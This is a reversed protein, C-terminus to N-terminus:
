VSPKPKLQEQIWQEFLENLLRQRMAQDLQAPFLKELRAIVIWGGLSMPLLLQGPQSGMLQKALQPHPVSLEVPGILGGTQAEPGESYKGALDAFSHEGEQIRFYLEQAVHPDKVRILSYIMRDLQGKRKLFYSELKNEWTAQKFKEVKINRAISAQWQEVTFNNRGLWAQLMEDSAIQHSQCFENCGQTLEETTCTLSAITQDILLERQLQPLLRYKELLSILEESSITGQQLKELPSLPQQLTLSDILLNTTM